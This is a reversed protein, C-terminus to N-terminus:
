KLYDLLSLQSLRAGIALTTQLSTQSLTLESIAQAM